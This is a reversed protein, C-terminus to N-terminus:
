CFFFMALLFTSHILWKSNDTEDNDGSAVHNKIAKAQARSAFMAKISGVNRTQSV